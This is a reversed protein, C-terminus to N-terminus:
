WGVLDGFRGILCVIWLGCGCVWGGSGKCFCFCFCGMLM